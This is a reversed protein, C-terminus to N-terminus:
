LLILYKPTGPIYGTQVVDYFANFLEYQGLKRCHDTIGRFKMHTVNLCQLFALFFMKVIGSFTCFGDTHPSQDVTTVFPNYVVNHLLLKVEYNFNSKM